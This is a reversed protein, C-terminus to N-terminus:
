YAGEGSMVAPVTAVLLKLDLGISWNTIYHLDMAVWTDFDVDSRGSVQWICTLGPKAVLRRRAADTYSAAEQPLAPRPGVLSMKGNLVQFLQPLEDISTRRLIRGVPTVRPDDRVKFVPGTQENLHLTDALLTEADRRMTRFKFMTFPEGGHGIREQRFLVPGRSTLRIAVAAILMIPWVILLLLAAGWVDIMRKMALKWGPATVLGSSFGVGSEPSPALYRVNSDGRIEAPAHRDISDPTAVEPQEVPGADLFVDQSAQQRPVMGVEGQQADGLM